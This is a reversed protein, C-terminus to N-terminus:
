LLGDDSFSLFGNDSVIIHDLLKIEMIESASKLKRTINKDAESPTLNGSPHNHCIIIASALKEIANKLIIRVDMVTGSVGGQSLKFKEIIRNSRNLLVVWFEEYPLDGLVPHFLQFIDKSSTIQQKHIVDALKRRKGLELAAIICIAKAEGIGKLQMFDNVTKKGLENLNNNSQNLIRKAVDVASENKTGSGLLIAILETDSLSQIGKALLKERPRDEKAWNKIKIYNEYKM